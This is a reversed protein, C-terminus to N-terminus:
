DTHAKPRPESIRIHNPFTLPPDARLGARPKMITHLDTESNQLSHFSFPKCREHSGELLLRLSRISSPTSVRTDTHGRNEKGGGPNKAGGQPVRPNPEHRAGPGGRGGLCIIEGNTPVRTWVPVSPGPPGPAPAAAPPPEAADCNSPGPRTAGGRRGTPRPPAPSPQGPPDAPSPAGGDGSAETGKPPPQSARARAALRRGSRISGAWLRRIVSRRCPPPLHRSPRPRIPLSQPETTKANAGPEKTGGGRGKM